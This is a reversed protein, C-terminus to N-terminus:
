FRGGGSRRGRTAGGGFSAPARGPSPLRPGGSRPRPGGRTMADVLIGGLILTGLSGMGSGGQTRFRSEDQRAEALARDAMQDAAQVEALAARPDTAALARGADLRRQADAVSTRAQAGVAGRRTAIFDEAAGIAAVAADTAGPLLAEARARAAAADRAPGLAAELANDAEELARRTVVPDYSGAALVDEAWALTDRAHQTATELPPGGALRGAEEVDRRTEAVLGDIARLLAALEAPARDVAELLTAAQALTEEAARARAVAGGRDGAALLETGTTVSEEALVLREAADDLQGTVREVAAPPYQDALTAVAGRAEPLRESLQTARRDLEPLLTDVTRELDRLADFHEVQDDLREDASRCLALISGLAEREEPEPVSGRAELQQQLGFAEQLERRSAALADTFPRAADDGFQAVAFGLEQESTRVADDLEILQAAVQARLEGLPAAAASTPARGRGRRGAARVALIVAVVVVGGILVFTLGGGGGEGSGDGQGAPSAPALGDALAVVAGAWDGDALEPEVDASIAQEMQAVSIPGDEDVSYGYARDGIAVAFLVDNGGLGSLDATVQAWQPGTMGDFTDVYAVWLQAGTTRQLQDLAAQVEALDDALVGVTDTVQVDLREPQEARAVPALLGLVAVVLLSAGVARGIAERM